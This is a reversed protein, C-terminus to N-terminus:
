KNNKNAPPTSVFKLPTKRKGRFMFQELLVL